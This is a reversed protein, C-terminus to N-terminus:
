RVPAEAVGSGGAVQLRLVGGSLRARLNEEGSVHLVIRLFGRPRDGEGEVAAGAGGRHPQVEAREARLAHLRGVVSFRQGIGDLEHVVFEGPQFEGVQHEHVRDAGAVAAGRGADLRLREVVDFRVNLGGRVEDPEVDRAFLAPERRFKQGAFAVAARARGRERRAELVAEAHVQAADHQDGRDEVELGDGEIGAVVQRVREVQGAVRGDGPVVLLQRLLQLPQLQRLRQRLRFAPRRLFVQRGQGLAVRQRVLLAARDRLVQRAVGAQRRRRQHFDVQAHAFRRKAM